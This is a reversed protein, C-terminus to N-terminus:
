FFVDSMMNSSGGKTDKIEVSASRTYVSSTRLLYALRLVFLYCCINRVLVMNRICLGAIDQWNISSGDASEPGSERTEDIENNIM